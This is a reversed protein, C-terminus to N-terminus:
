VAFDHARAVHDDGCATKAVILQQQVTVIGFSRLVSVPSPRYGCLGAGAVAQQHRLFSTSIDGAMIATQQQRCGAEVAIEFNKDGAPQNVNVPFAAPEDVLGGFIRHHRSHHLILKATRDKRYEVFCRTGSSLGFWAICIRM